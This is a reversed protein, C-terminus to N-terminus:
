RLAKRTFVRIALYTFAAAYLAIVTLSLAAMGGRQDYGEAAHLGAEPSRRGCSRRGAIRDCLREAEDLYHTTLLVTMEGGALDDILDLLEHRIRTDLGVTPEDLFLM